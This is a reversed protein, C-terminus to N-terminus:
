TFRGDYVGFLAHDDLPSDGRIPISSSLTHSDEMTVRWGKMGSAAFQIRGGDAVGKESLKETVHDLELINGM